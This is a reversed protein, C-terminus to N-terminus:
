DIVCRQDDFHTWDIDDRLQSVIWDAKGGPGTRERVFKLSPSGNEDSFYLSLEDDEDIVRRTRREVEAGCFSLLAYDDGDRMSEFVLDYLANRIDDSIRPTRAPFFITRHWDLSTFGRRRFAM